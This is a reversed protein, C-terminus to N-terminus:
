NKRGGQGISSLGKVPLVANPVKKKALPAAGPTLTDRRARRQQEQIEEPTLRPFSNPPAYAVGTIKVPVGDDMLENALVFDASGDMYYVNSGGPVHNYSDTLLYRTSPPRKMPALDWLLPIRPIGRTAPPRQLPAVTYVGFYDYSVRLSGPEDIQVAVPLADEANRSINTDSPCEFTKLEGVYGAYLPLLCDADGNGGSHPFFLENEDAYMQLAMGIQVLNNLCSARRAAERARALAPLLIAALIGIVAIVVLLEVLTLGREQADQRHSRARSQRTAIGIM